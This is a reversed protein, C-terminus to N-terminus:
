EQDWGLEEEINGFSLNCLKSHMFKKRRLELWEKSILRSGAADYAEECEYLKERLEEELKLICKMKSKLSLPKMKQFIKNEIDNLSKNVTAAELINKKGNLLIGRRSVVDYKTCEISEFTKKHNRFTDTSFNERIGSATSVQSDTDEKNLLISRRLPRPSKDDFFVSPQSSIVVKKKSKKESLEFNAKFKKTKENLIKEKKYREYLIKARRSLNSNRHFNMNFSLNDQCKQSFNHQLNPNESYKRNSTELNLNRNTDRSSLVRIQKANKKPSINSSQVNTCENSSKKSCPQHSNIEDYKDIKLGNKESENKTKAESMLIDEELQQERVLKNVFAM